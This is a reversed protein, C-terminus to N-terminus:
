CKQATLKGHTTSTVFVIKHHPTTMLTVLSIYILCHARPHACHCLLSLCVWVRGKGRLRWPIGMTVRSPTSLPRAMGETSCVCGCHPQVSVPTVLRTKTDAPLLSSEKQATPCSTSFCHIGPKNILWTLPVKASSGSKVNPDNIKVYGSAPEM